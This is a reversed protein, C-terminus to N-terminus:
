LISFDAEIVLENLTDDKSIDKIVPAALWYESNSYESKQRVYIKYNLLKKVEKESFGSSLTPKLLTQFVGNQDTVVSECGKFSVNENEGVIADGSICIDIDDAFNVVRVNGYTDRITGHVLVNTQTNVCATFLTAFALFGIIKGFM